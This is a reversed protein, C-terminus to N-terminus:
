RPQGADCGAVLVSTLQDILTDLRAFAAETAEDGLVLQQIVLGDLTALFVRALATDAPVGAASLARGVRDVYSEYLARVDGRLEPHLRGNLVYRFRLAGEAAGAEMLSRLDGVEGRQGNAALALALAEHVLHDLSRFHYSVLGNNVGAEAAVSRYTVGETGYRAILRITAELLAKRGEGRQLPRRRRELSPSRAHDPAQMAEEITELAPRRPETTQRREFVLRVPEHIHEEVACGPHLVLVDGGAVEYPEGGSPHVTMRGSVVFKVWRDRSVGYIRAPSAEWVGTTHRSDGDVSVACGRLSPEGELVVEDAMPWPRLPEGALRYVSFLPPASIALAYGPRDM